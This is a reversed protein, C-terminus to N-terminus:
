RIGDTVVDKGNERAGEVDAWTGLDEYTRGAELAGYTQEAPDQSDRTDEVIDDV